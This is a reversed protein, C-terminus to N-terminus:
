IFIQSLPQSTVKMQCITSSVHCRLLYWCALKPGAKSHAFIFLCNHDKKHRIDFSKSVNQQDSRREKPALWLLATVLRGWHMTRRQCPPSPHNSSQWGEHKSNAFFKICLIRRAIGRKRKGKQCGADLHMPLHKIIAMVTPKATTLSLSQESGAAFNPSFPRSLFTCRELKILAPLGM